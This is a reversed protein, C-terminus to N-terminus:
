AQGQLAKTTTVISEDLHGLKEDFAKDGRVSNYDVMAEEIETADSDYNSSGKSDMAKILDNVGGFTLKKGSCGEIFRAKMKNDRCIKQKLFCNSSLCSWCLKVYKKSCFAKIEKHITVENAKNSDDSLKTAIAAAGRRLEMDEKANIRSKMYEKSFIMASEPSDKKDDTGKEVEAKNDSVNKKPSPIKENKFTTLIGKTDYSKVLKKQFDGINILTKVDAFMDGTVQQIYEKMQKFEGGLLRIIDFILLYKMKLTFTYDCLVRNKSDTYATTHKGLVSNM